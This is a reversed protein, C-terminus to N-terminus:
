KDAVITPTGYKGLPTVTCIHNNSAIWGLHDSATYTYTWEPNSFSKNTITNLVKIVDPGSISNAKEAAYKYQLLADYASAVGVLLDPQTGGLKATATALVKTVSAPLSSGPTAGVNCGAWTTPAFDGLAGSSDYYAATTEVIDPHWGVVQQSGLVAGPHQRLATQASAADM